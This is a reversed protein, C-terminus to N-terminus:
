TAVLPGGVALRNTRGGHGFHVPPFFHLSLSITRSLSLSFGAPPKEPQLFCSTLRDFPSAHQEEDKWLWTRPKREHKYLRKVHTHVQIQLKVSCSVLLDLVMFVASVVLVSLMVM